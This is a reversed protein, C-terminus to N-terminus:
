PRSIKALSKRAHRGTRMRRAIMDNIEAMVASTGPIVYSDLERRDHWKWATGYPVGAERACGKLILYRKPIIANRAAAAAQLEIIQTAMTAMTAQLADIVSQQDTKPTSPQDDPPLEVTAATVDAQDVIPKTTAKM